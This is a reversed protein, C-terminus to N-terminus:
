FTTPTPYFSTASSRHLGTDRTARLLTPPLVMGGALLGKSLLYIFLVFASFLGARHATCFGICIRAVSDYDLSASDNTRVLM